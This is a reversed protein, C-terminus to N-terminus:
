KTETVGESAQMQSTAATRSSCQLLYDGYRYYTLKM